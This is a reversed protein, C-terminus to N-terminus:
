GAVLRLESPGDSGSAGRPVSSSAGALRSDGSIKFQSIMRQLEQAMRSLHETSASMQEAATAAGQTIENVNEVAKSVQRANSTQEETAASISQSMENMNELAAALDRTASVQRETSGSLGVITEKVKKSAERIQEMAAQSGVATKVGESVNRVSERILGEIEKASAASRDALKSVETAVVAFGRGHEGARAAEISANLALLNTQDAIDSIVSVIGGIKESGAAIRNISAVVQEVATAGQVANEVSRAALGSIESLNGSVEDVSKQVQTMSATGRQVASAQSQAHEAVQDVSATLEEVSASTEELTSAQSQAGESLKQASQSIQHSSSAVQEASGQITAVLDRLKVVMSNLAEALVGIENRQRVRLQQTLDGRAVLQAFAVGKSLPGTISLVILIGLVLAIAPGTALCALSVLRVEASASEARALAEKAGKIQLQNDQELLSYASEISSSKNKAQDFMQSFLDKSPSAFYANTIRVFQEHDTWWSTMALLFQKWLAAEEGKLAISLYTKIAGDMRQKAQDMSDFARKQVEPTAGKILL